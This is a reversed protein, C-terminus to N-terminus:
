ASWENKLARAAVAVEVRAAGHLRLIRAAENLTAGSTMVDDVLLLNLGDIDGLCAFAGRVNRAREKLALEAQPPTARTRVLCDIQMTTHLVKALSRAIEVSQNFGREGLRTPHLPLPIIGDFRRSALRAALQQGIWGALALQHGYKLAQILRDAPFDYRYLAFTAAFYPPTKLCRGCREGRSTPEGCQPCLAAPLAPLDAACAPCLPQRGADGGCLLCSGPLLAALLQCTVHKLLHPQPLISM